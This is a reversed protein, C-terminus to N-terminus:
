EIREQQIHRVKTEESDPDELWRYPDAVSHGHLNEVITEDRRVSPYALNSPRSTMKSFNRILFNYSSRSRRLVNLYLSSSLTM